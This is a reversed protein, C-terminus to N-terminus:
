DAPAPPHTASGVSKNELEMKDLAFSIDLGIEELLSREEPAFFGAETASINLLGVGSDKVSFPIAASSRFDAIRRTLRDPDTLDEYLVVKRTRIAAGIPSNALPMEMYIDGAHQSEGSGRGARAVRDLKDSGEDLLGIWAMRFKGATVVIECVKDFLEAQRKVHVITRNIESLTAYLRAHYEIREEARRRETIDRSIGFTGIINGDKDRLPLKDTLVWSDPHGSRTEKEERSLAIGTRIIAQEDDYAQRAHEESFFDFDTKGILQAPDGVDFSAALATGARIFRSERDKFYIYDPSTNLLAQLLYQEQVLAKDKRRAAKMAGFLEFAMEISAQLVFDGSNKIVYGYRTIGRVKEVMERESHSTLFVIPLNRKALIRRAAETGDIGRGLDIDMLILSVAADSQALEVASEGSVAIVVAYGSRKITEAEAMAIIAEDEVLLIKRASM